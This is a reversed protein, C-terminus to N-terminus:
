SFYRPFKNDPYETFYNKTFQHVDNSALIDAVDFFKLDLHQEDSKLKPTGVICIKYAAVIYHTGLASDKQFSDEYLHDYLGYLSIHKVNTLPIATENVLIREFASKLSENLYVRGGPVFWFGKAPANERKGLLVQGADNIVLLDLAFLNTKEVVFKFDESSLIVPNLGRMKSQSM